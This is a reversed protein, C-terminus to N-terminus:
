NLKRNLIKQAELILANSDDTGLIGRIAERVPALRRATDLTRQFDLQYLAFKQEWGPVDQVIYRLIDVNHLSNEWALFLARILKDKDTDSM